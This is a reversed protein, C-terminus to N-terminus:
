ATSVSSVPYRPATFFIAAVVVLLIASIALPVTYSGTVRHLVAALLPSVAVGLSFVAYLVGFMRGYQAMAYYRSTLNGLLDVEAGLALGVALAAVTGLAAGGFALAAFGLATVFVVCAAVRPAFFRDVLWGVVLRSMIMSIGILGVTRAASGSSVGAERLLPVLNLTMWFASVSLIFFAVALRRFLADRLLPAISQRALKESRPRSAASQATRRPMLVFIIVAAALALFGIVRYGSRWSEALLPGLFVPLSFAVAGAGALSIGLALGRAHDFRENLTRTFSVPTTASALLYMLAFMLLYWLFVPGSASMTLYAAGLAAMSVVSPIRAGFRDVLFGVLPATLVLILSGLQLLSLQELSWGFEEELAGVVLGNTFVPVIAIGFGIGITAAALARWHRRFEVTKSQAAIVTSGSLSEHTSASM